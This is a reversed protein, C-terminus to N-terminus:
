TYEGKQVLITRMHFSATSWVMSFQRMVLFKIKSITINMTGDFKKMGSYNKAEITVDSILSVLQQTWRLLEFESRGESHIATTMASVSPTFQQRASVFGGCDSSNGCCLMEYENMATDSLVFLFHLSAELKRYEIEEKAAISGSSKMLYGFLKGVDKVAELLSEKGGDLYVCFSHIIAAVECRYM